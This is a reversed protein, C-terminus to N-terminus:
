ARSVGKLVSDLHVIERIDGLWVLEDREPHEANELKVIGNIGEAGENDRFIQVTPTVTVLGEVVHGRRTTVRVCANVALEGVLHELYEIDAREVFVKEAIQGM